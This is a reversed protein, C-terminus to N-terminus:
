TKNVGTSRLYERAESLKIAVVDPGCQGGQIRPWDEFFCPLFFRWRSILLFIATRQRESLDTWKTAADPKEASVASHCFAAAIIERREFLELGEWTLSMTITFIDPAPPKVRSVVM